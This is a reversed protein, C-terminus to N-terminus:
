SIEGFYDEDIKKVTYAAVETVGIGHDIMFDALLDGDILVIKKEIKTVYDRADQSFTSTTILVGKRARQGELSGAFAQVIPRGVTGDWRKAQIYVVDLGLKDEKIIGDIGGDGSRGVAQGADQRSGGYGMGVLLDIVLREFFTPPCAKIRELLDRALQRRLSQYSTELQEEPTEVLGEAHPENTPQRKTGTRSRFAAFEEFQELFRIDIRDLRQGLVSRGRETVRVHGRGASELLRAQRLYSCAWAVRNDLRRQRGSPLVERRDEESLDLRRAVQEVIGGVTHVQGDAAAELTPLLFSQFEPVAM